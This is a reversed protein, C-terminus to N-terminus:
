LSTVVIKDSISHNQHGELLCPPSGLPRGLGQVRTLHPVHCLFINERIYGTKGKRPGRWLERTGARIRLLSQTGVAGIPVIHVVDDVVFTIFVVVYVSVVFYSHGCRPVHLLIERQLCVTCFPVVGGAAEEGEVPVGLKLQRPEEEEWPTTPSHGGDPCGPTGIQVVFSEFHRPIDVGSGQPSLEYSRSRSILFERRKKRM